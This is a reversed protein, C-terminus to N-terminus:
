HNATPTISDFSITQIVDPREQGIEVLIAYDGMQHRYVYREKISRGTPASYLSFSGISTNADRLLLDHGALDFLILTGSRKDGRLIRLEVREAIVGDSFSVPSCEYYRTAESPEWGVIQLGSAEVDEKTIPFKNRLMHFFDFASMPITNMDVYRWKKEYLTESLVAHDNHRRAQHRHYAWTELKYETIHTM